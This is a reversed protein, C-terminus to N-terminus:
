RGRFLSVFRELSWGVRDSVQGDGLEVIREAGDTRTAVDVSYFPSPIVGTCRRVVDPVPDRENAAHSERDLVFYRRESGEEFDEVRRICLGGEIMGRYKQMESVVLEIQEPRDIMSGVSTKLSKVHDKVFFRPWGLHELPGVLNSDIDLFVTEPTYDRVLPYWNPLHHTAVYESPSAYPRGGALEVSAVLNQYEPRTLMWGRYLVRAAEELPPKLRTTGGALAETDIRHIRHGEAELAQAEDQFMEDM